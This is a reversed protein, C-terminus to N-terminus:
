KFLNLWYNKNGDSVMKIDRHKIIIGFLNTHAPDEDYEEFPTDKKPTVYDLQFGLDIIRIPYYTKM